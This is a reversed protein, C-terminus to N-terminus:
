AERRGANAPNTGGLTQLALDVLLVPRNIPRVRWLTLNPLQHINTEGGDDRHHRLARRRRTIASGPKNTRAGPKHPEEGGKRGNPNAQRKAKEVKKAQKSEAREAVCLIYLGYSTNSLQPFIKESVSFGYVALTEPLGGGKKSTTPYVDPRCFGAFVALFRM